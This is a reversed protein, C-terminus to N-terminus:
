KKYSGGKSSHYAPNNPNLQNSRNDIAAKHDPSTLNFVASRQDNPTPVNNVPSTQKKTGKEELKIV